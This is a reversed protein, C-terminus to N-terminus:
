SLSFFGNFISDFSELYPSLEQRCLPLSLINKKEEYKSQVQKISDDFSVKHHDMVRQIYRLVWKPSCFRYCDANACIESELSAYKISGHHELICETVKKIITANLNQENAFQIWTEVGQQRHESLTGAHFCAWLKSDMFLTGLAVITADAWLKEALELWKNYSLELNYSDPLGYTEIESYAYEKALEISHKM